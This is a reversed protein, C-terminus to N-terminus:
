LSFDMTFSKITPLSEAALEWGDVMVKNKSKDTIVVPLALGSFLSCPFHLASEKMNM